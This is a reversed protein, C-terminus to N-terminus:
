DALRFDYSSSHKYKEKWTYIRNCEPCIGMVKCEVTGQFDIEIDACTDIVEIETNCHPCKFNMENM